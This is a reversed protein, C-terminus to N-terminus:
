IWKEKKEARQDIKRGAMIRTLGMITGGPNFGVLFTENSTSFLQQGNKIIQQGTNYLKRKIKGQNTDLNHENVNYIDANFGLINNM